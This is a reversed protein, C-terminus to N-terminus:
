TPHLLYDLAVLINCNFDGLHVLFVISKDTCPRASETGTEEENVEIEDVLLCISGLDFSQDAFDVLGNSFAMTVVPALFVYAVIFLPFFLLM